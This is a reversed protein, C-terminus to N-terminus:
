YVSFKAFDAYVDQPTAWSADGGWFFTSFFIGEIKLSNATRFMLGGQDLVKKDNLWVRIQGNSKGPQNLIVEQELQYWKGPQFQWNGRGMSTGHKRSTPLYAYVEGDGQRRWMYRTSFGYTIVLYNLGLIFLVVLM